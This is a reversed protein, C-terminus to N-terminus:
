TAETAVIQDRITFTIREVPLFYSFLRDVAVVAHIGREPWSLYLQHQHISGRLPRGWRMGLDGLTLLRGRPTFQVQYFDKGLMVHVQSFIGTPSYLSCRERAANPSTEDNIVTADQCTFGAQPRGEIVRRYSTFPDDPADARRSLMTVGAALGSLIVVLWLTFHLYVRSM